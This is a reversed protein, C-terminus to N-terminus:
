MSLLYLLESVQGLVLKRMQDVHIVIGIKCAVFLGNQLNSDVGEIYIDGKQGDPFYFM